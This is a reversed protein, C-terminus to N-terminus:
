EDTTVNCNDIVKRMQVNWSLTDIITNRIKVPELNQSYYFAVVEGIDLPSDDAPAKLIYPMKEFDDDTESYVFPIGRAAYERNKLSKMSTINSRHRGLSAVGMDAKEFLLDLEDGTRTGHFAVYENLM